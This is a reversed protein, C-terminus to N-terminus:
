TERHGEERGLLPQRNETRSEQNKTRLGRLVKFCEKPATTRTLVVPFLRRSIRNRYLFSRKATYYFYACSDVPAPEEMLIAEVDSSGANSQFTVDYQMMNEFKPPMWCPSGDKFRPRSHRAGLSPTAPGRSLFALRAASEPKRPKRLEREGESRARSSSNTSSPQRFLPFRFHFSWSRTWRECMGSKQRGAHM